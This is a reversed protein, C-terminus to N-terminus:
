GAGEEEFSVVQMEEERELVGDEVPRWCDEVYAEASHGEDGESRTRGGGRGGGEGADSVENMFREFGESETVRAEVARLRRSISSVRQLSEEIQRKLDGRAAASADAGEASSEGAPPSASAYPGRFCVVQKEEDYACLPPSGKKVPLSALLRVAEADSAVDMRRRFSALPLALFIRSLEEVQRYRVSAILEQALELNNEEKLQAAHVRIAESLGHLRAALFASLSARTNRAGSALRSSAPADRKALTRTSAGPFVLAHEGIAQHYTAMRLAEEGSPSPPPPRIVRGRLMLSLLVFRKYADAQLYLTEDTASPLSLAMDLAHFAKEHEQLAAWVEGAMAFYAICDHLDHCFLKKLEFADRNIVRRARDYLGTSLCLQLAATDASTIIHRAPRFKEAGELLPELLRSSFSPVSAPSSTAPGEAPQEQADLAFRTTSKVVSIFEEPCRQIQSGQCQVLFNMTEEFAFSEFEECGVDWLRALLHCIGLSCKAHSISSIMDKLAGPTQVLNSARDQLLGHLEALGDTSLCPASLRNITVHLPEDM